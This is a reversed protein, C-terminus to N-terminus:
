DSKGALRNWDQILVTVRDDDRVRVTPRYQDSFWLGVERGAADLIRYGQPNTQCIRGTDFFSDVAVRGEFGGLDLERWLSSKLSFDSHIGLIADPSNRVGITYYRYGPLPENSTVSKKIEASYTVKGIQAADAFSANLSVTLLAFAAALVFGRQSFFRKFTSM